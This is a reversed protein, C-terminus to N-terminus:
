GEPLKVEDLILDRVVPSEFESALLDYYIDDWFRGAFWRAQRRRGIEKFGAKEYAKQGAINWEFTMLMINHLGLANFGFDCALKVAETGYGRGRANPDGIMIGLEATRNANDLKFLEVGGIPRLDPQEYITFYARSDGKATKEYWDEENELSFVDMRLFRTTELQNMWQQYLPILERRIPGLAINKGTITIIPPSHDHM